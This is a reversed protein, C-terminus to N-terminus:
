PYKGTGKCSTCDYQGDPSKGVGRSAPCKGEEKLKEQEKATQKSNTKGGSTKKGGLGIQTDTVTPVLVEGVYAGCSSFVVTLFLATMTFYSLYWGRTMHNRLGRINLAKYTANRENM